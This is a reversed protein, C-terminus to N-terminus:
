GGLRALEIGDSLGTPLYHFGTNRAGTIVKTGRFTKVYSPGPRSQNIAQQRRPLPDSTGRRPRSRPRCNLDERM